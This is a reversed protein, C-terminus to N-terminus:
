GAPRADDLIIVDKIVGGGGSNRAANAFTLLGGVADGATYAGATVTPTQSISIGEAGIQGIHDENAGVVLVEAHSGDGMDRFRKYFQGLVESLIDAM